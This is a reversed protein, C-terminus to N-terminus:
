THQVTYAGFHNYQFINYWTHGSKQMINRTAVARKFQTQVPMVHLRHVFKTSLKM